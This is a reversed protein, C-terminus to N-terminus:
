MQRILNKTVKRRLVKLYILHRTEFSLNYLTQGWQAVNLCVTDNKKNGNINHM